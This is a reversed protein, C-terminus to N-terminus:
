YTRILRFHKVGAGPSDHDAGMLSFYKACVPSKAVVEMATMAAKMSTWWVLDVYDREGSKVLERRVFGPQKALFDDQLAQSSQLLAAEDVEPKLKFPAYELVQESM